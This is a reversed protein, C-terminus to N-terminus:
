LYQVGNKGIFPDHRSEVSDSGEIMVVAENNSLNVFTKDCGLLACPFKM